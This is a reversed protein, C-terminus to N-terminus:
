RSKAALVLGIYMECEAELDLHRFLECDIVAIASRLCPSTTVLRDMAITQFPDGLREAVGNTFRRALLPQEPPLLNLAFARSDRIVPSIKNGKRVVVSVLSPEGGARQVWRVPLGVREGDYCATILWSGDAIAALAADREPSPRAPEPSRRDWDRLIDQPPRTVRPPHEM